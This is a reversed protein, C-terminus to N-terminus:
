SAKRPNQHRYAVVFWLGLLLWALGGVVLYSLPLFATVAVGLIWVIVFVVIITPSWRRFPASM